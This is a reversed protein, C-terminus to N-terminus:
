NRDAPVYPILGRKYAIVQVERPLERLDVVVGNVTAMWVLPNQDLLSDLTWDPDMMGVKLTDGITRAKASATNQSVGFGASLQAMTMYPTSAKDSLFNIQGLLYAVGCAWTRPQGSLLPSPRKRCLAATMSRALVQYEENLHDSCFADTLATVVDYHPRMAKPVSIPRAPERIPITM